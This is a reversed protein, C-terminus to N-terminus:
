FLKIINKIGKELAYSEAEEESLNMLDVEVSYGKSRLLKAEKIIEYEKNGCILYDIEREKLFSGERSLADLVREVGIAFGTAPNPNGFSGLLKDYRGGGCIPFGLCESYGEFVIGTYYDFDRLISFDVFVRQDVGYAKLSSALGELDKIPKELEAETVISKLNAVAQDLNSQTTILRYIKEEISQPKFNLLKALEVYNKHSLAQKIKMEREIDDAGNLQKLLGKIIEMHGLGIQFSQLGVTELAEVALAIIEGDAKSGKPGIFEVGAQYFESHRGKQVENGYRFVNALYFLRQPLKQDKLGTAALRAIPSTMDPRLALIHGGRGITKLLSLTDAGANMTLTDYYEFSSSVIERYSWSKFLHIWKEELYRKKYAEEPLFDKFGEPVQLRNNFINMYDGESM